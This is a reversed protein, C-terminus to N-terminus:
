LNSQFRVLGIKEDVCGIFNPSNVEVTSVAHLLGSENDFTFVTVNDSDQNASFVFNGKPHFKFHRPTRGGSHTTCCHELRGNEGLIRYVTLSNHGRNSVVVFNGNPSICIRGCTNKGKFSGSKPYSDYSGAFTLVSSTESNSVQGAAIRAIARMNVNFVVISSSLEMVVFALDYWPHFVMYRPGYPGPIGPIGLHTTGVPQLIGYVHDFRFESLIDRGLDPVFAVTGSPDLVIAHAHAARQRNKIHQTRDKPTHGAPDTKMLLKAQGPIGDKDISICGISSDWYNTFLINRMLRDITLYCSSRGHLSVPESILTLKGTERDFNYAWLNDDQKISESCTYVVDRTPHFRLFSPNPCSNEFGCLKLEVSSEDFKYVELGRTSLTGSPAHALNEFNNYCAVYVFM